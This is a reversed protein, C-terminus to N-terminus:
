GMSDHMPCLGCIHGFGATPSTRISSGLHALLSLFLVISGWVTGRRWVKRGHGNWTLREGTGTGNGDVGDARHFFTFINVVAGRLACVRDFGVVDDEGSGGGGGGGGEGAVEPSGTGSSSCVFDFASSSRAVCHKENAPAEFLLGLHYSGNGGGAAGATTAM